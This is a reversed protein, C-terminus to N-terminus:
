RVIVKIVAKKKGAKVTIKATGKKKAIIKGNKNITAVRKNSTSYRIKDTSTFPAVAAIIQSSQKKSLRVTRGSSIIVKATKVKQKQVKVNIAKGNIWVTAKGTKRGAKLTIKSGSYSVTVIKKNSSNVSTIVAANTIKFGTTKQGIKLIITGTNFTPTPNPLQAVARYETYGCALCTRTEQGQSTITPQATTYWNGFSHVGTAPVTEVKTVDCKICRYTKEGSKTCTPATTINGGDWSHGLAPISQVSESKIAGCVACHISKQGNETCTAPKDITCDTNWTHNLQVPLNNSLAYKYADSTPECFIRFGETPSLTDAKLDYNFGLCHPEFNIINNGLTIDNIKYCNEFAAEGISVVCQPMSTLKLNSCNYFSFRGITLGSESFQSLDISTIPMYAFASDGIHTISGNCVIKSIGMSYYKWPITTEDYNIETGYWSIEFDNMKGSGTLILVDQVGDANSDATEWTISNGCKGATEHQSDTDAFVDRPFLLILASLILFFFIGLQELQKSFQKASSM